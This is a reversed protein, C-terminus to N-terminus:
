PGAPSRLVKGGFAASCSVACCLLGDIIGDGRGADGAHKDADDARVIGVVTDRSLYQFKTLIIPPRHQSSAAWPLSPPSFLRTGAYFWCLMVTHHVPRADNQEYGELFLSALLARSGGCYTGYWTM